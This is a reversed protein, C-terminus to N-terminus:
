YFVHIISYIFFFILRYRKAAARNREFLKSKADDDITKSKKTIENKKSTISSSVTKPKTIVNTTSTKSITLPSTDSIQISSKHNTDQQNNRLITEKLKERVNTPKAPYAARETAPVDATISQETTSNKITNTSNDIVSNSNASTTTVFQFQVIQPMYETQVKKIVPTTISTVKPTIRFYKSPVTGIQTQNNNTNFVNLSNETKPLVLPCISTKQKKYGNTNIAKVNKETQLVKRKNMKISNLFDSTCDASSDAVINCSNKNDLKNTNHGLMAFRSCDTTSVEFFPLVHPTHLTEEGAVEGKLTEIMMLHNVDTSHQNPTTATSKSEVARRFTEDFPNVHQLHLDEFLGVEDCNRILRTPTPTQDAILIINFTLM